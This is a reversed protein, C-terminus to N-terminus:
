TMYSMQVWVKGWLLLCDKQPSYLDIQAIKYPRNIYSCDEEIHIESKFYSIEIEHREYIPPIGMVRLGVFTSSIM